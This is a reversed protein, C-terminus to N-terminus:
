TRSLSKAIAVCSAKNAKLSQKIEEEDVGSVETRIKFGANELITKRIESKSALIINRIM